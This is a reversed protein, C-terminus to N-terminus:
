AVLVWYAMRSRDGLPSGFLATDWQCKLISAPPKNGIGHIYIVTNPEKSGTAAPADNPGVRRISLKTELAAKPVGASASAKRKRAVAKRSATKRVVAKRKSRRAM